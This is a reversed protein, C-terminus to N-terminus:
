FTKEESVVLGTSALKRHMRLPYPSHFSIQRVHTVHGLHAGHGYVTFVKLFDEERSVYHGQPKTHPMQSM